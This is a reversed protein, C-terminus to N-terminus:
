QAAELGRLVRAAKNMAAYEYAQELAEAHSFFMDCHYNGDLDLVQAWWISMGEYFKCVTPKTPDAQKRQQISM